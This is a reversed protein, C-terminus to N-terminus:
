FHHSLYLKSQPWLLEYVSFLELDSTPFFQTFQMTDHDGKRINKFNKLHNVTVLTQILKHKYQFHKYRNWLSSQGPPKGTITKDSYFKMECVHASSGTQVM